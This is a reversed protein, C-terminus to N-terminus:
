KRPAANPLPPRWGVSFGNSYRLDVYAVDVIREELATRAPGLLAELTAAPDGRGFRLEADSVTRATWEGRADRSLGVIAFPGDALRLSLQRFVEAVEAEGGDAGRLRPLGEPFPPTPKFRRSDTDLLQDEGWLAFPQREWIRVRLRDPWVREVRARSVWPLQEVAAKAAELDVSALSSALFPTIATEVAAAPVREFHGEIHVENIRDAGSVTLALWAAGLVAILATAGWIWPWWRGPGPMPTEGEADRRDDFLDDDDFSMALTSM